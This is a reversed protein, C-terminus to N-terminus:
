YDAAIAGDVRRNAVQRDTPGALEQMLCKSFGGEESFNQDDIVVFIKGGVEMYDNQGILVRKGLYFSKAWFTAQYNLARLGGEEGMKSQKRWSWYGDVKRLGYRGEFGGGVRPKMKFVEYTRVYEPFVLLMNDM